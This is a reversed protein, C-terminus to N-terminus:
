PSVRLLTTGSPVRAAVAVHGPLLETLYRALQDRAAVDVHLVGLRQASKDKQKESGPTWRTAESTLRQIRPM